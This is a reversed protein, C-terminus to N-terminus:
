KIDKIIKKLEILLISNKIIIYLYEIDERNSETSNYNPYFYYDPFIKDLRIELEPFYLKFIVIKWSKEPLELISFVEHFRRVKDLKM